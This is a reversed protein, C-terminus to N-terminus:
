SYFPIRALKWSSGVPVFVRQNGADEADLLYEGKVIPGGAEGDDDGPKFGRVRGARIAAVVAPTFIRDYKALFAARSASTLTDPSINCATDGAECYHGIRFDVFPLSTMSAVANRDNALVAKRFTAFFVRFRAAHTSIASPPTAGAALAMPGPVASLTVAAVAIYLLAKMGGWQENQKSITVVGFGTTALADFGSNSDPIVGRM